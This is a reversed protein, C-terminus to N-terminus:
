LVRYFSLKVNEPERVATCVIIHKGLWSYSEADTTFSTVGRFYYSGPAVPRGALLAQMVDPPGHRLARNHVHIAVGDETQLTYRADLEAVGDHRILQWDAGGPLVIGRMAPGEFTGGTIPVVRRQGKNFAGLDQPPDVTVQAGFIFELEPAGSGGNAM